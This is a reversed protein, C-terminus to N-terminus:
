YVKGFNKKVGLFADGRPVKEILIADNTNILIEKLRANQGIKEQLAERM